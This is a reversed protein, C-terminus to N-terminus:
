LDFYKEIEFHIKCKRFPRGYTLYTRHGHEDVEVAWEKGAYEFFKFKYRVGKRINRDSIKIEFPERSFNGPQLASKPTRWGHGAESRKSIKSVSFNGVKGFGFVQWKRFTGARMVYVNKLILNKAEEPSLWCFEDWVEQARACGSKRHLIEEHLIGTKKNRESYILIFCKNNKEM